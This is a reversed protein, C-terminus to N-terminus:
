APTTSPPCPPTSTLTPGCPGSSRPASRTAGRPTRSTWEFGIIATFTGPDNHEEAAKICRQWVSGYTKAGPSYEDLMGDPLTGQAFNTILDKAATAAEEGGAKMGAYWEKGKDYKLINPSGKAIDESFGMADSHDTIVIWDLPRALRVPQGTSAVVEEGKAFRYAEDLGLTNGFLGADASLRTHLHTDGWYVRSPFSRQAYPSYAKGPYADSLADKTPSGADQGHVMLPFCIAAPIYRVKM